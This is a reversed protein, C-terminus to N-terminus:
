EVFTAWEDIPRRPTNLENVKDDINAYGIAMGCFLICDDSIDLYTKVCNQKLSWSEQACTDLNNDVALLMFTQLFMGLDSWQPLGMQKDIFCFMGVPADFFNFNKLMQNMRGIKDERKIDLLSYMQEGMQNRSTKYPEKLKEPYIPYPPEEKGKWNKQFELFDKMSKENVIYIKWPQLNGGSPARSSKQLMERIIDNSVPKDTFSRISKRNKIIESLTKHV